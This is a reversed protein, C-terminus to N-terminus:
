AFGLFPCHIDYKSTAAENWAKLVLIFITVITTCYPTSFYDSQM